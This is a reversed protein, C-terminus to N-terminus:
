ATKPYPISLSIEKDKNKKIYKISQAIVTTGNKEGWIGRPGASGRGGANGEGGLNMDM